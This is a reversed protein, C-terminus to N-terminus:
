KRLLPTLCLLPFICLIDSLSDAQDKRNLCAGVCVCMCLAIAM